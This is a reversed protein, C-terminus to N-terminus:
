CIRFELPPILSPPYARSGLGTVQDKFTSDMDNVMAPAAIPSFYGSAGIEAASLCSGFTNGCFGVSLLWGWLPAM